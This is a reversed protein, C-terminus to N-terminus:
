SIVRFFRYAVVQAGEARPLPSQSSLTKHQSGPKITPNLLLQGCYNRATSM